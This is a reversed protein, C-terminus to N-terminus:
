TPPFPPMQQCVTRQLFPTELHIFTAQLYDRCGGITSQVRRTIAQRVRALTITLIDLPGQLASPPPAIINASGLSFGFAGLRRFWSQRQFDFAGPASPPPPPSLIVRVRIWSGAIMDPQSGRLRIRIKEPVREPGLGAIRTRELAARRSAPFTELRVVRGTLITPGIRKALVTHAVDQTRWQAASFGSAAVAFAVLVMAWVGGRGLKRRALYAALGAALISGPGIWWPPEGRLGFYVAIGTGFIVPLWLVWRERDRRLAAFSDTDFGCAALSCPDLLTNAM